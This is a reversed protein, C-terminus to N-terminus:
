LTLNIALIKLIDNNKKVLFCDFCKSKEDENDSKRCKPEYIYTGKEVNLIDKFNDMLCYKESEKSNIKPISTFYKKLANM